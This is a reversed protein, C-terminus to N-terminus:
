LGNIKSKGSYFLQGITLKFLKINLKTKYFYDCAFADIVLSLSVAIAVGFIGYHLGLV